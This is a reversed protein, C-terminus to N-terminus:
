RGGFLKVWESFSVLQGTGKCCSIELGSFHFRFGTCSAYQLLILFEMMIVLRSVRKFAGFTVNLRQETKKKKKGWSSAKITKRHELAQQKLHAGRSEEWNALDRFCKPSSCTCLCGSSNKPIKSVKRCDNLSARCSRSFMCRRLSSSSFRARMSAMTLCTNWFCICGVAVQKM